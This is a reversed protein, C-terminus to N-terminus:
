NEKLFGAKFDAGQCFNSALLFFFLPARPFYFFSTQPFTKLSFCLSEFQWGGFNDCCKCAGNLVVLGKKWKVVKCFGTAQFHENWSAPCIDTPGSDQRRFFLPQDSLLSRPFNEPGQAIQGPQFLWDSASPM